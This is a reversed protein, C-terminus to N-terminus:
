QIFGLDLVRKDKGFSRLIDEVYQEFVPYKSVDNVEAYRPCQLWGSNHIGPKPAPQKGLKANGNWCDDFLVFMVRIKHRDCIGLFDDMRGKFGNPDEQWVLYHLFM